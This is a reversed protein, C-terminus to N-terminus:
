IREEKWVLFLGVALFFFNPFWMAIFPHLMGRRAMEEGALLLVYYITFVIFSIGLAVGFGGRRIMSALPAALIVFVVAGFPLSFKKHVEVWLTNIRNKLHRRTREDKAKKLQEEKKKIENLLMAITMERDSRYEREKLKIGIDVKVKVMYTDFGVLRHEKAHADVLQSITGDHLEFLIISDQISRIFGYRASIFTKGKDSLDYIRVDEIRSTRDDKNRVYIRYNKVTNFLGAKIQASPKKVYIDILINKFTHNAEPLIRDNFWAMFGFVVFAFILPGVMLRKLSIGCAKAAIIEFNQSMRGFAILSAVLVSMPVSLALIFPMANLFLKLVVDLPVGKRILLDMLDFVKDLLLVTTFVLLAGLFPMIHASIVYRDLKKLMYHFLKHGM